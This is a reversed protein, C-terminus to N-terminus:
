YTKIIAILEQDSLTNFFTYNKEPQEEAEEPEPMYGMEEELEEELEEEATEDELHQDQDKAFHVIFRDEIEEISLIHKHMMLVDTIPRAAIEARIIDTLETKSIGTVFSSDKRSVASGNAPITVLSVELLDQSEYYM